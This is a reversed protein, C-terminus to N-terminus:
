RTSLRLFRLANRTGDDLVRPVFFCSVGDEERALSFFGDSMPASCFWKHGILRMPWPGGAADAVARTSIVRLDSGGQKETLAMGITLATKHQAFALEAQYGRACLRPLWASRLGPELAMM